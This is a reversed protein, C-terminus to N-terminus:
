KVSSSVSARQPAIAPGLDDQQTGLAPSGAWLGTRQTQLQVVVAFVLLLDWGQDEPAPTLQYGLGSAAQPVSNQSICVVM